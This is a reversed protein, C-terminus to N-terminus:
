KVAVLIFIKQNPKPDPNPRHNKPKLDMLQVNKFNAAGAWSRISELKFGPWLDHMRAKLEENSHEHYDAIFVTGGPKLLRHIEKFAALPDEIHHLYMSACVVDISSGDLPVDCGDSEITEINNIGEARAKNQLEKLMERSIDVAIVKRVAAAAHRAIYGDGAGLDMLTMSPDLINLELLKTKISEDYYNKSLTEWEPAVQNFFEKTDSESGSYAQSDGSSLWDILAKRSFRWERGIKRGPVKEEKLLKIFTKISVNFLEAAEEMNLIEKDM